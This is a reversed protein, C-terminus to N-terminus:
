FNMNYRLTERLEGNQMKERWERYWEGLHQPREIRHKRRWERQELAIAKWDDEWLTRAFFRAGDAVANLHDPVTRVRHDPGLVKRVLDHIQPIQSGGGAIVTRQAAPGSHIALLRETDTEKGQPDLAQKVGRKIEESLVLDFARTVYEGDLITSVDFFKIKEDVKYEYLFTNHHEKTSKLTEWSAQTCSEKWYSLHEQPLQPWYFKAGRPHKTEIEGRILEELKRDIAFSAKPITEQLKPDLITAGSVPIFLCIDTTGAGIDIVLCPKEAPLMLSRAVLEPEARLVVADFGADLGLMFITAKVFPPAGPPVGLVAVHRDGPGLHGLSCFRERVWRLVTRACSYDEFLSDEQEPNLRDRDVDFYNYEKGLIDVGGQPAKLRQVAARAKHGGIRTLHHWVSEGFHLGAEEILEDTFASINPLFWHPFRLGNVYSALQQQLADDKPSRECRSQLEALRKRSEVRARLVNVDEHDLKSAFVSVFFARSELGKHQFAVSTKFNGLDIGTVAM